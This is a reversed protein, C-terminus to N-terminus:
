KCEDMNKLPDTVTQKAGAFCFQVIHQPLLIQTKENITMADDLTFIQKNSHLFSTYLKRLPILNWRILLDLEYTYIKTWRFHKFNYNDTTFICTHLLKETAETVSITSESGDRYKAIAIRVIIEFFEYRKLVRENTKEKFEHSAVNTTIFLRDITSLIVNKDLIGSKICYATFDNWSINPFASHSALYEFLNKMKWFYKLYLSKLGLIETEKNWVCKEIKSYKWDQEMM